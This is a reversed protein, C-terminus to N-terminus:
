IATLRGSYKEGVM